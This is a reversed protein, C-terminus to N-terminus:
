IGLDVLAEAARRASEPTDLKGSRLLEIAAAVAQKDIEEGAMARQVYPRRVAGLSDLAGARSDGSTRAGGPKASPQSDEPM